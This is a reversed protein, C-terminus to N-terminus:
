APRRRGGALRRAALGLLASAGLLLASPEPTSATPVKKVMVQADIKATFAASPSPVNVLLPGITTTFDHGGLTATQTTPSDLKITLTSSTSTLTGTLSGKFTLDGELKGEKLHLTMVFNTNYRDPPVGALSSTQITAGPIITPQTSGLEASSSGAELSFTVNGTGSPIVPGPQIKWAYSFDVMDCLARSEGTLGVVALWFLLRISLCRM